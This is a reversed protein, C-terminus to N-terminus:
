RYADGCPSAVRVSSPMLDVVDGSPIDQTGEIVVFLNQGVLMHINKRREM